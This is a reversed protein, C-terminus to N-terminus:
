IDCMCMMKGMFYMPNHYYKNGFEDEGMLTGTKLEETRCM